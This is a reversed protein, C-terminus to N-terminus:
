HVDFTASIRWVDIALVKGRLVAFLICFKRTIIRALVSSHNKDMVVPLFLHFNNDVVKSHGEGHGQCSRYYEADHVAVTPTSRVPGVPSATHSPTCDFVGPSNYFQKQTLDCEKKSFRTSALRLLMPTACCNKIHSPDIRPINLVCKRIDQDYHTSHYPSQSKRLIFFIFPSM